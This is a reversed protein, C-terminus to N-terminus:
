RNGTEQERNGQREQVRFGAEQVRSEGEGEGRYWYAVLAIFAGALICSGVRLGIASLGWAHILAKLAAYCALTLGAVRSPTNSHRRGHFIAAIGALAYFVILLFVSVDYSFAHALEERFWVFAVLAPLPTLVDLSASRLRAACRSFAWIALATALAAVSPATAFLTYSYATRDLLLTYAWLSAITLVISITVALGAHDRERM